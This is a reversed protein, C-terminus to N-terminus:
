YWPKWGAFSWGLVCPDTAQEVLCDVQQELSLGAHPLTRRLSGEPGLVVKEFALMQAGDQWRLLPLADCLQVHRQRCRPPPHPTLPHRRSVDAYVTHLRLEDLTVRASNGGSLKERVGRMRKQAFSRLSSPQQPPPPASARASASASASPSLGSASALQDGVGAEFSSKAREYGDGGPRLREEDLLLRQEVEEQEITAKQQEITAKQQETLKAIHAEWDLLPEAVFVEMLRLLDDRRARLAGLTHQMAAKLLVATDLPQLFSTMQATLRVAMLEPVPLMYTAHGFAMGFDIAIARGTAPEIMFNDLHRDGIGLLYQAITLAALSSAFASRMSLFGEAGTAHALIGRGLLNKPALAQAAELRRGALERKAPTATEAIMSQSFAKVGRDAFKKAYEMYKSNAKGIQNLEDKVQRVDSGREVAGQMFGKLTETGDMWELLGVSTSLPAVAYTRMRLGRAACPASADLTANMAAMLQQVRQDLRLDEGGKVLFRRETQDSCHFTLRKPLRMSELVVLPDAVCELMVHCEPQPAAHGTYQGPLELASLPGPNPLLRNDYKHLYSSYSSLKRMENHERGGRRWRRDHEDRADQVLKGSAKSFASLYAAGQKLKVGETGCVEDLKPGWTNAWGQLLKGRGDTGAKPYLAAARYAAYCARAENGRGEKLLKVIEDRVDQAWGRTPHTPTSRWTPTTSHLAM